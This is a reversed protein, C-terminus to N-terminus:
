KRIENSDTRTTREDRSASSRTGVGAPISNSLPHLTSILSRFCPFEAPVLSTTRLVNQNIGVVPLESKERVAESADRSEGKGMLVHSNIATNNREGLFAIGSERRPVSSLTHLRQLRETTETTERYDRYDRGGGGFGIRVETMM